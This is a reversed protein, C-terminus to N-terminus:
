AAVKAAKRTAKEESIEARRAKALKTIEQLAKRARTGAASNGKAFKADETQWATVADTIQQVIESM